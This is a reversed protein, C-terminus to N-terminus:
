VPLYSILFGGAILSATNALVSYLVAKGKKFEKVLSAFAIAEAILIIIEGFIFGIVWYPSLNPGTILANLGGQTILNIILFAIWSAKKRYGFLLFIMGEIILTLVVRMSVLLPVRLPSQGIKLSEQEFDLTLLNNYMKFTSAPLACQFSKESSQVMLVAGELNKNRLPIMHYFFRYHAEWGKREKSLLVPAAEQADSFRIFLSLDAPPNSVIVTLGPPEASNAFVGAPYAISLAIILIVLILHKNTMIM